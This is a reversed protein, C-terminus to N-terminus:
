GRRGNSFEFAGRRLCDVFASQFATPNWDTRTTIGILRASFDTNIPLAILRGAAIDPMAVQDSVMAIHDSRRLVSEILRHSGAEFVQSPRDLGLDDFARDFLARAPTGARSVWFTQGQLEALDTCDALPHQARAVWQLHSKFLPTQTIGPAPPQPRLAGLIMDLDGQSLHGLLDEYPGEDVRLHHCQHDILFTALASPLWQARALPLSGISLRGGLNGQHARIDDHAQTLEVHLLKGARAISEGAPTLQQGRLTREFLACGLNAELSRIARHIASQAVALDAAAMAFSPTQSAAVVARLQTASLSSLLREVDGASRRGLGALASRLRAVAREVRPKLLEGAATPFLKGHREFLSCEFAMELKSLAQTLAPQSIFVSDAAISVSQTECVKLFARLHRLNLQSADM